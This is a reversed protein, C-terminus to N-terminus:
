SLYFPVAGYERGDFSYRAVWKGREGSQGVDAWFYWSKFGPAITGTFPRAVGSPSVWEVRWSHSQAYEGVVVCLYARAGALPYGTVRDACAQSSSMFSNLVPAPEVTPPPSPQPTPLSPTPSPSPTYTPPEPEEEPGLSGIGYGVSIRACEDDTTRYEPKLRGAFRRSYGLARGAKADSQTWAMVVHGTMWSALCETIGESRIGQRHITEHLLTSIAVTNTYNVQGAFAKAANRCTAERVHISSGGRYFGMISPSRAVHRWEVDTYCRVNTPRYPEFGNERFVSGVRNFGPLSSGTGASAAPAMGVSVAIAVAVAATVGLIFRGRVM